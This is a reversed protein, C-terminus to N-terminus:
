QILKPTDTYALVTVGFVKEWQTINVTGGAITPGKELCDFRPQKTVVADIAEDKTLPSEFKISTGNEFLFAISTQATRRDKEM